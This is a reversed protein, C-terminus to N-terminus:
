RGSRGAVHDRCPVAPVCLAASAQHEGLVEQGARELAAVSHSNLIVIVDDWLLVPPFVETELDGDSTLLHARM